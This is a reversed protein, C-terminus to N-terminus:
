RERNKLDVIMEDLRTLYHSTTIHSLEDVDILCNYGITYQENDILVYRIKYCTDFGLTLIRDEETPLSCDPANVRTPQVNNIQFYNIFELAANKLNLLENKVNINTIFVDSTALTPYLEKMGSVVLEIKKGFERVPYEVVIKQEPIDIACSSPDDQVLDFETKTVSILVKMPVLNNGDTFIYKDEVSSAKLIEDLESIDKGYFELLKLVGPNLSEAYRTEPNDGPTTYESDIVIYHKDDEIFPSCADLFKWKQIDPM